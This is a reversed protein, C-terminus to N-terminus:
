SCRMLYAWFLIFFSLISDKKEQRSPLQERREITRFASGNPMTSM